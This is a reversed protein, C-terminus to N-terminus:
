PKSATPEGHFLMEGLTRQAERDGWKAQDQMVALAEQYRQSMALSQALAFPDSPAAFPAQPRRVLTLGM